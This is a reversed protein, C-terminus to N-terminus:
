AMFLLCSQEQAPFRGALSKDRCGRMIDGGDAKDKEDHLLLVLATKHDVYPRIKTSHRCGRSLALVGFGGTEKASYLM